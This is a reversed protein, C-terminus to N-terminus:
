KVLYVDAYQVGVSWAASHNDHYIDIHGYPTGRDEVVYVHGNIMLKTGFPVGGMAVTRGATPTTGSATPGGSWQGCCSACNCYGTLKFKGLYENVQKETSLYGSWVYRIEEDRLIKTWNGFEGIATVEDNRSLVESIESEKSPLTRVNLDCTSYLTKPEDYDKNVLSYLGSAVCNVMSPEYYTEAEIVADENVAADVKVSTFLMVGILLALLRKM